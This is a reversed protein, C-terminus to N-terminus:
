DDRNRVTVRSFGPRGAHPDVPKKVRPKRVKAGEVLKTHTPKEYFEKFLQAAMAGYVGQKVFLRGAKRGYQWEPVPRRIKVRFRNQQFQASKLLPPEDSRGLERPGMIRDTLHGERNDERLAGFRQVGGIVTRGGRKHSVLRLDNNRLINPRHNFTFRGFKDTSRNIDTDADPNKHRNSLRRRANPTRGLFLFYIKKGVWTHDGYELSFAYDGGRKQPRVQSEVMFKWGFTTVKHSADAFIVQRLSKNDGGRSTVQPRRNASISTALNAAATEKMWQISAENVKKTFGSEGTIKRWLM